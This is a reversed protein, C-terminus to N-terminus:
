MYQVILPVREYSTLWFTLLAALRSELAATHRVSRQGLM